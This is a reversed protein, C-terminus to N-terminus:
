SNTGDNKEGYAALFAEDARRDMEERLRRGRERMERMCALHRRREQKERGCEQCKDILYALGTLKASCCMCHIEVGFMARVSNIPKETKPLEM